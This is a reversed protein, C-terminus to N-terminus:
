VSGPTDNKSNIKSKGNCIWILREKVIVSKNYTQWAYIHLIKNNLDM